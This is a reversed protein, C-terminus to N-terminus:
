PGTGRGVKEQAEVGFIKYDGYTRISVHQPVTRTTSVARFTDYRLRTPYTLEISRDREVFRYRFEVRAQYGLPRPATRFGIVNFSKSWQDFQQRIRDSQSSPQARIELPTMTTNDITVVGEWERIDKGDTFPLAGKFEIDRVWDFGDFREGLDRYAFFGQHFESFLFVWAFAAPFPEGDDVEGPKVAGSARLVNRSELIRDGDAGPTLLFAYRRLKEKGAEGEDYDASRVTETCTFSKVTRRYDVAREALKGLLADPLGWPAKSDPLFGVLPSPAEEKRGEKGKGEDPPERPPLPPPPQGYPALPDDPDQTQARAALGAAVGAVALVLLAASTLRRRVASNYGGPRRM